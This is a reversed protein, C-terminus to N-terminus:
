FLSVILSLLLYDYNEIELLNFKIKSKKIINLFLNKYNEDKIGEIFTYETDFSTKIKINQKNIFQLFVSVKEKLTNKIYLKMKIQPEIDLLPNFSKNVYYNIILDANQKQPLIYTEYDFERKKIKELVENKSYGRKECDRKIKWYTTLKRDTDLYIKLNILDLANNHYLTHLGCMIINSKSEIKQRDTFKGTKHDYDCQYIDSGIKLKFIDNKYKELCNAEPNLHTFENWKKDEREWKHYRDGEIKVMENLFLKNLNNALTTKGSGSDGSIAIINCLSLVIKYNIYISNISINYKEIYYKFFHPGYELEKNNQLEKFRLYLSFYIDMINPTGIAIEDNLYLPDTSKFANPIHLKLKDLTLLDIFSYLYIDPRLRIIWDYKINNDDQYLSCLKYLKYLKFWMAKINYFKNKGMNEVETLLVKPKIKELIKNLDIPSAIYRDKELDPTFNLFLDCDYKDLLHIKLSNYNHLFSRLFGSILIAVKVM